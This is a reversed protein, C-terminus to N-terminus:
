GAIFIEVLRMVVLGLLTSNVVLPSLPHSALMGQQRPLRLDMVVCINAGVEVMRAEHFISDDLELVLWNPLTIRSQRSKLMELLV